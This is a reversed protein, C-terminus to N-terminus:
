PGARCRELAVNAEISGSGSGTAGTRDQGRRVPSGEGDARTLNASLRCPARGCCGFHFVRFQEHSNGSVRGQGGTRVAALDVPVVGAAAFIITPM